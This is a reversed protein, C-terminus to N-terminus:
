PCIFARGDTRGDSDLPVSLWGWATPPSLRLRRGRWASQRAGAAAAQLHARGPRRWWQAPAQVRCLGCPAPTSGSGMRGGQGRLGAVGYAISRSCPPRCGAQVRWGSGCGPAPVPRRPGDLSPPIVPWLRSRTEAERALRGGRALCQAPVASLARSAGAERALCPRAGPPLFVSSSGQGQWEPCQGGGWGPRPRGGRPRSSPPPPSAEPRSSRTPLVCFPPHPPTAWPRRSVSSGAAQGWGPPLAPLVPCPDGPRRVCGRTPLSRM